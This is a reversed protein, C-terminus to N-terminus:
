FALFFAPISALFFTVVSALYFALYFTLISALYFALISALFFTLISALYFALCSALCFRLIYALFYTVISALYFTLCFTLACAPFFTLIYIYIYIIFNFIHTIHTCIQISLYVTYWINICKWMTHWFSVIDSYHTLSPIVRLLTNIKSTTSLQPPVWWHSFLQNGLTTCRSFLFYALISRSKRCYVISSIFNLSSHAWRSVISNM